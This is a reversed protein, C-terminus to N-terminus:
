PISIHRAPLFHPLNWVAFELVRFRLVARGMMRTPRSRLDLQHHYLLRIPKCPHAKSKIVKHTDM